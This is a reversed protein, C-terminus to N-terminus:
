NLGKKVSFQVSFVSCQGEDRMGKSFTVGHATLLRPTAAEAAFRIRTDLLKGFRDAEILAQIGLVDSGTLRVRSHERLNAQDCSILCRLNDGSQIIDSALDFAPFHSIRDFQLVDV